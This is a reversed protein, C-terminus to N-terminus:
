TFITCLHYDSTIHFYYMLSLLTINSIWSIFLYYHTLLLARSVIPRDLHSSVGCM